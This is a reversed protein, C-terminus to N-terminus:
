RASPSIPLGSPILAQVVNTNFRCNGAKLNEALAFLAKAAIERSPRETGRYQDRLAIFRAIAEPTNPNWYKHFSFALNTEWPGPFGNYNNGWGNGEIILLHNTDAERIAKTIAQYLDWLPKNSSDEKGNKDKGEFTWNPENLL